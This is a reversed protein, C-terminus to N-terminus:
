VTLCRRQSDNGIPYYVGKTLGLNILEESM